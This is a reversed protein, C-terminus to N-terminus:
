NKKTLLIKSNKRKHNKNPEIIRLTPDKIHDIEVSQDVFPLINLNLVASTFFHNFTEAIKDNNELISNDEVLTIKNSRVNKETFLPKVCKWFSKNVIIKKYGM